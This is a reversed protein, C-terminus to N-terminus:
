PTPQPVAEKLNEKSKSFTIQSNEESKSTAEQVEPFRKESLASTMM